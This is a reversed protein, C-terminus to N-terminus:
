ASALSITRLTRASALPRDQNFLVSWIVASCLWLFSTKSKGTVIAWKGYDLPRKARVLVRRYFQLSARFAGFSLTLQGLFRFYDTVKFFYIYAAIGFVVPFLETTFFKILNYVKPDIAM